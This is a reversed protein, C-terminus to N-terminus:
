MGSNGLDPSLSCELEVFSSRSVGKKFTALSLCHRALPCSTECLLQEIEQCVETALFQRLSAQKRQGKGLTPQFLHELGTVTLAVEM